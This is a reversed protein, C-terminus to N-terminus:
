KLINMIEAHANSLTTEISETKEIQTGFIILLAAATALIIKSSTTQRKRIRYIEDTKQKRAALAAPSTAESLKRVAETVKALDEESIIEETTTATKEM